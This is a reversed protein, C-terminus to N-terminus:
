YHQNTWYCSIRCKSSGLQTQVFNLWETHRYQLKKETFEVRVSKLYKNNKAQLFFWVIFFLLYKFLTWVSLAQNNSSVLV